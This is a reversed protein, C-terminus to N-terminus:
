KRQKEKLVRTLADSLKMESQERKTEDTLSKIKQVLTRMAAEEPTKKDLHISNDSDNNDDNDRDKSPDPVQRIAQLVDELENVKKTLQRVEEQIEAVEEKLKNIQDEDTETQRNIIDQLPSDYRGSAEVLALLGVLYLVRM